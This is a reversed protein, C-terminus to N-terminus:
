LGTTSLQTAVNSNVSGYGVGAKAVKNATSDIMLELKELEAAIQENGQGWAQHADGHWIGGSGGVEGRANAILGKLRSRLDQIRTSTTALAATDTRMGPLAM